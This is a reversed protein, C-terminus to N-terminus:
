GAVDLRGITLSPSGVRGLFRLDGGVVEVRGFLDVLNGSIAAGQVPFSKRGGEIWHGAAGLSFDGSIPDATHLGMVETIFFGDAIDGILEEVTGRGPVIYLNSVGASPPAKLSPRFGNGTSVAGGGERAAALRDYLFGRLVGGSMLETRQQPTGEDDFPSSGAGAPYLGDDVIDIKESFVKRGIRGALLSKGKQVNEALFPGALVSLLQASTVNDFVVPYPGTKGKRAGLLGVAQAAARRGCEAADLRDFFPSFDFDWGMQSEDGDQVLLGLSVHCGTRRRNLDLGRSNMLWTQSVSEEYEARRVKIVRRDFALAAAEMELPKQAKAAQDIDSLAEDFVDVEPLEDPRDALCQEGALVPEPTAEEALAAAQRATRELTAPSLDFTYASGAKQDKFARVALGTEKARTLTEITGEKAGLSLEERSAVMVEWGDLGLGALIDAAQRAARRM